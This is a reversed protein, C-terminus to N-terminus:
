YGDGEAHVFGTRGAMWVSPELPDDQNEELYDPWADVPDAQSQQDHTCQAIRRIGELAMTRGMEIMSRSVPWVYCYAPDTKTIVIYSHHANHVGLAEKHLEYFGAQIHYGLEEAQREFGRRDTHRTTKLDWDQGTDGCLVDWRCKLPIEVVSEDSLTVEIEAHGTVEPYGAEIISKAAKNRHVADIWQMLKSQQLESLILKDANEAKLAKFDNSNRNLESTIWGVRGRLIYDHLLNGMDTDTIVSSEKKDVSPREAIHELYYARPGQPKMVTRLNSSRLRSTDANYEEVTWNVCRGKLNM